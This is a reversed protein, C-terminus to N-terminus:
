LLALSVWIGINPAKEQASVEDIWYIVPTGCAGKTWSFENDTRRAEGGLGRNGIETFPEMVWKILWVQSEDKVGRDVEGNGLSSGLGM